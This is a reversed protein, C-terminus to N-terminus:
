GHAGHGRVDVDHDREAVRPNGIDDRPLGRRCRYDVTWCVMRQRQGVAASNTRCCRNLLTRLQQHKEIDIANRARPHDLAIVLHRDLRFMAVGQQASSDGVKWGGSREPIVEPVQLVPNSRM